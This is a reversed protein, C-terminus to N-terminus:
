GGQHHEQYHEILHRVLSPDIEVLTEDGALDRVDGLATTDTVVKGQVVYTGRDTAYMAPCTGQNSDTGLFRLRM